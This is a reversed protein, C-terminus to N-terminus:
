QGDVSIDDDQDISAWERVMPDLDHQLQKLCSIARPSDQLRSLSFAVAARVQATEDCAASILVDVSQLAHLHGLAAAAAERVAPSPDESLRLELLPVSEDRFPMNPTGLQGLLFAGIERSTASTSNLLEAGKQFTDSGGRMQLERAAATRVISSRDSLFQFLPKTEYSKLAQFVLLRLSSSSSIGVDIM